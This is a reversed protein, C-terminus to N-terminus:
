TTGTSSCGACCTRAAPSSWAAGARIAMHAFAEPNGRDEGLYYEEHGTVHDAAAGEAGAHMYVVVVSARGAARKILARAAPIDLLSADYAYPAFAVFALRVGRVRVFTIEGPLGTQALGAAHITRVTQAQGAAGFDFSHNNADNLITFGTHRLYRVYGPPDRFAFCDKRRRRKVPGCKSATATTLTGELNGFVIQAGRDLEGRVPGLYGEPDPPPDSTDGLMTDGVAAITVLATRARARPGPRPRGGSPARHAQHEQPQSPSPIGARRRRRGLVGRWGARRRPGAGPCEPAGPPAVPGSSCRARDLEAKLRPGDKDAVRRTSGPEAPYRTPPVATLAPGNPSYSGYAGRASNRACRRESAFYRAIRLQSLRRGGNVGILGYVWSDSVEGNVVCDERLTGERVFGLKELVRASAANRTDTEAQVRNLDLTDFAWQLLARGAETAYGHGWAADDLCYGMSASRYDPNWRTLSCWGIFAQDCVREMALRAGSGEEAMRGCAAIFREARARESWPPADWYRLVYASSHLAFLADADASTFPRLRLRATRLTPTPLSM